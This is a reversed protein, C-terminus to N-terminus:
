MCFFKNVILNSLIEGRFYFVSSNQHLKIRTIPYQLLRTKRNFCRAEFNLSLDLLCVWKQFHKVISILVTFRHCSKGDTLPSCLNTYRMRNMSLAATGSGRIYNPLFSFRNGDLERRVIKTSPLSESSM